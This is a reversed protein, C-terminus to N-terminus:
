PRSATGNGLQRSKEWEMAGQLAEEPTDAVGCNVLEMTGLDRLLLFCGGGGAHEFTVTYGLSLLTLIMESM